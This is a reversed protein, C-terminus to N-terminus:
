GEVPTVGDGTRRFAQSWGQLLLVEVRSVFLRRASDMDTHVDVGGVPYVEVSRLDLTTADVDERFYLWRSPDRRDTGFSLRTVAGDQTAMVRSDRVTLPHEAREAARLMALNRVRDTVRYTKIKALALERNTETLWGLHVASEVAQGAVGGGILTTLEIEAGFVGAYGWVAQVAHEPLTGWDPIEDEDRVDLLADAAVEPGPTDHGCSDGEEFLKVQRDFAANMELAVDPIEPLTMWQHTQDGLHRPLVCVQTTDFQYRTMACTVSEPAMGDPSGHDYGEPLIDVTETVLDGSESSSTVTVTPLPEVGEEDAVNWTALMDADEAKLGRDRYERAVDERREWLRDEDATTWCARGHHDDACGCLRENMELAEAHAAEVDLLMQRSLKRMPEAPTDGETLSKALARGADTLMPQGHFTEALGRRCLAKFTQGKLSVLAWNEGLRYAKTLMEVQRENLDSATVTM